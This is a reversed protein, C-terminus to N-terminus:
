LGMNVQSDVIAPVEKKKIALYHVGTMDSDVYDDNLLNAFMTADRKDMIIIRNQDDTMLALGFQDAQEIVQDVTISSPDVRLLKEALSPNQNALGLLSVGDPFSLAFHKEIEAVKNNVIIQRKADYGFLQTFKKENFVFMLEGLVLVQNDAPMRLAASVALPKFESSGISWSAAGTIIDSQKMHKVIYFPDIGKASFKVVVGKIKRIDHDNEDFFELSEDFAVQEIVAQANEVSEIKVYDVASDHDTQTHIDRIAMGTAAGTEITSILDYLFLVKIQATLDKSYKIQYATFGKTFVYLDIKLSDKLSDAHNAWQFIDPQKNNKISQDLVMGVLEQGEPSLKKIDQALKELKESM